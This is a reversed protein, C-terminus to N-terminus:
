NIANEVDIDNTEDHRGGGGLSSIFQGLSHIAGGVVQNFGNPRPPPQPNYGSSPQSPQSPYGSGYSGANNSSTDCNYMRNLKLIDSAAFGERQGM